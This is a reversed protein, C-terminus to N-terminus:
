QCIQAVIVLAILFRAIVETRLAKQLSLGEKPEPDRAIGRVNECVNEDRDYNM